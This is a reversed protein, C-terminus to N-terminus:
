LGMAAELDTRISQVYDTRGCEVAPDTQDYAPITGARVWSQLQAQNRLQRERLVDLLRSREEGLGYADVFVRLRGPQGVEPWGITRLFEPRHLPCLWWAAYALDWLRRGPAAFDWDILASPMQDRYVTNPISLDNHCIVEAVGATDRLLPDWTDVSSVFIDTADHFRRILRAHEALARDTVTGM